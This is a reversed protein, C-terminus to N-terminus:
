TLPLENLIDKFVESVTPHAFLVEQVDSVQFEDELMTAMGFIQESATGGVLHVGLLQRTERHVVVKCLGKVSEYDTLFRGNASLPLKGVIIPIGQKNATAETLGVMAVEPMTYAVTPIASVRLRDPRGLMTNVAVNAMRIASHAWMSIGTVDGAAYVNPLNTRMQEDVRIGAPALDLDTNELGLNSVNPARGVEILVTDAQIAQSEEDQRIQVADNTIKIVEAGLRFDIGALSERLVNIIDRDWEPLLQAERGIVTVQCGLNSFITAFGLAIPTTGIIALQDPLKEISLIETTTKVHPLDIGTIQPIIPSAGTAILINKARYITEGVAITSRDVFRAEGEVVDVKRRMMQFAVGDRLTEIIQNKRAMAQGLNFSVGEIEVGFVTSDRAMVYRKSSQLLSKTPICGRNLCTGGLEAKEILLVKMGHAGAREASTYGAPGGGIVILDYNKDAM